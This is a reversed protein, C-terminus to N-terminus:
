GWIHAELEEADSDSETESDAAAAVPAYDQEAPASLSELFKKKADNEPGYKQELGQMMRRRSSETPCQMLIKAVLNPHKQLEASDYLKFFAWLREDWGFTDEVNEVPVTQALADDAAAADFDDGDAGASKKPSPPPTVKKLGIELLVDKESELNKAMLQLAEVNESSSGQSVSMSRGAQERSMVTGAVEPEPGFRAVLDQMFEAKREYNEDVIGDLWGQQELKTADWKNYFREVRDTFCLKPYCRTCV